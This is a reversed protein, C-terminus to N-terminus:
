KVVRRLREIEAIMLPGMCTWARGDTVIRRSTAQQVIPHSLWRVGGSMQGSRYDSIVLAKPPETLLTELSVKGGVVPRQRLGALRLWQAGLSDPALTFGGGSIWMADEAKTPASQRLIEIRRVWPDARHVDGLVVAVRRLNSVVDDLTMPLAVDVPHIGIRSALYARSRGGGGMNLIVAPHEALVQEITGDNAPFRRAKRWLATERPDRSLFSVSAIEGPKALLLLMEDTCLNVSAVRTPSAATVLAILLATLM